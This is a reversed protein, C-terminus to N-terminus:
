SGLIGYFILTEFESMEYSRSIDGYDNVCLFPIFFEYLEEELFRCSSDGM